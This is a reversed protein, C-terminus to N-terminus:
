YVFPRTNNVFGDCTMVFFHKFLHKKARVSTEIADIDKFKTNILKCKCKNKTIIFFTLFQIIQVRVNRKFHDM